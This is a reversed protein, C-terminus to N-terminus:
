GLLANRVVLADKTEAVDHVRVINAGYGVGLVAMAISGALRDEVERGTLRGIVSKRSAGLLIPLGGVRVQELGAVLALNHADTKGFGIGPDLVLSEHAIGAAEAERVRAQLFERVEVVADTYSPADQMDKPQGQMHMLCLAAGFQAVTAFMGEDAGASVDNVMHAGAALAAHAVKTKRTDVSVLTDLTRLREIVPIVRQLEEEVSVPQAGPRTSEGGVDLIDAGAEIMSQACTTVEDLDVLGARAFRGGDSFSDPTLNLVGMVAPTGLDLTRERASLALRM